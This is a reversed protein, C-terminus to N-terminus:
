TRYAELEKAKRFVEQLQKMSDTSSTHLIGYGGAENFPTICGLSDDILISYPTAYKSKEHKTRVFNPKYPINRRTLWDSKQLKAEHGQKEDFTGVSTLIEVYVHSLSGVFKLLELADPMPKLKRFINHEMVAQKFRKKDDLEPLIESFATDFDCLVGDMDLYVTFNKM